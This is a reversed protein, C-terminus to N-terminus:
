DYAPFDVTINNIYNIGFIKVAEELEYAPDQVTGLLETDSVFCFLRPLTPPISLLPGGWSPRSARGGSSSSSIRRAMYQNGETGKERFNTKRNRAQSLM